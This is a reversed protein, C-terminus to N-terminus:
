AQVLYQLRCLNVKDSVIQSCIAPTVDQQLNLPCKVQATHMKPLQLCTDWDVLGKDERCSKIRLIEVISLDATLSCYRQDHRHPLCRSSHDPFVTFCPTMDTGWLQVNEDVPPVEFALM